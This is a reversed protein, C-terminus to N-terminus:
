KADGGSAPKPEETKRSKNAQTFLMRQKLADLTARAMTLQEETGKVILLETEPHFGIYINDGGYGKNSVDALTDTIQQRTMGGNAILDGVYCVMTQKPEVARPARASVDPILRLLVLPRNGNVLLQWRAPSNESELLLNMARFIETATVNKLQLRITESGPDPGVNSGDPNLSGPSIVIDFKDNFSTRLLRAVESAPLGDYIVNTLVIGPDPWDPAIWPQPPLPLGTAPDVAGNPPMPATPAPPPPNNQALAAGPALLLWLLCASITPSLLFKM